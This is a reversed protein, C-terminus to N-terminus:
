LDRLTLANRSAKSCVRGGGSVSFPLKLFLLDSIVARNEPKQDSAAGLQVRSQKAERQVGWGWTGGELMGWTTVRWWTSPVDSSGGGWFFVSLSRSFLLCKEANSGEKRLLDPSVLPKLEWYLSYSFVLIKCTCLQVQRKEKFLSEFFTHSKRWFPATGQREESAM